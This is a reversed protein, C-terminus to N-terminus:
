LFTKFDMKTEKTYSANYYNLQTDKKWEKGNYVLSAALTDCIM